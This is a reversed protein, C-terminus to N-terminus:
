IAVCPGHRQPQPALLRGEACANAQVLCKKQQASFKGNPCASFVWIPPIGVSKSFWCRQFPSAAEALGAIISSCSSSHNLRVFQLSEKLLKSVPIAYDVLKFPLMTLHPFPQLQQFVRQRCPVVVLPLAFAPKAVKKSEHRCTPPTGLPPTCM